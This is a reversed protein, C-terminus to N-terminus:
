FQNYQSVLRELDKPEHQIIIEAELEGALKNFRIRSTTLQKPDHTYKHMTNNNFGKQHVYLDGTILLVKNNTLNVELVSSGPTHGPFEHIIVSGDKFVDFLGEFTVFSSKKLKSYGDGFLAKVPQSYMYEFEKASTIFTASDFLNANGSHDPHVHSLAVFDIDKPSLEKHKLQETLSKALSYEWAGEKVSESGNFMQENLGTDWLLYKDNHKILLCPNVLTGSVNLYENGQSLISMDSVKMEGCDLIALEVAESRSALLSLAMATTILLKHM